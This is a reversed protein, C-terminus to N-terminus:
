GLNKRPSGRSERRRKYEEFSLDTSSAKYPAPNYFETRALTDQRGRESEARRGPALSAGATSHFRVRATSDIPHIGASPTLARNSAPPLSERTPHCAPCRPGALAVNPRPALKFMPNIPPPVGPSSLAPHLHLHHLFFCPPKTDIATPRRFIFCSRTANSGGTNLHNVTSHRRNAGRVEERGGHGEGRGVCGAGGEEGVECDGQAVCVFSVGVDRTM